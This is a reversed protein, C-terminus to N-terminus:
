NVTNSISIGVSANGTDIEGGGTNEDASNGGTSASSDVDNTVGASNTVTVDLEQDVDIFNENTSEAGTTDNEADVDVDGFEVGGVYGSGQNVTNSIDTWTEANGTLVEGGGTNEDASNDGTSASSDVDNTVGASNTVDVDIDQDIDIDNLNDSDFGTDENSADVSVDGFGGEYGLGANIENIITASVGADGTDIEGGGTNEDASNGGSSASLVGLANLLSAGNTLTVDLEQDVDIFNENTSEAGTTDNEADVDVDGFVETYLEVAASNVENELAGDVDANGTDIEGGGTNEDASNDGTSSAADVDNAIEASNTVDIDADPDQSDQIDVDNTNTSDFGTNENSVEVNVDAFAVGSALMGAVSLVSVKSLFKKM